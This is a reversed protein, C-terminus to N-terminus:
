AVTLYAHIFMAILSVAALVAAAIAVNVTFCTVEYERELKEMEKEHLYAEARRTRAEDSLLDYDNIEIQM